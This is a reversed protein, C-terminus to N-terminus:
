KRKQYGKPMEPASGLKGLGSISVSSQAKARSSLKSGKGMKDKLSANEKTLFEIQKNPVPTTSPDAKQNAKQGTQQKTDKDSAM